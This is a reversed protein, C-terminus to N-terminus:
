PQVGRKSARCISTPSRTSAVWQPYINCSAAAAARLHALPLRQQQQFACCTTAAVTWRSSRVRSCRAAVHQHSASHCGLSASTATVHSRITRIHLVTTSLLARTSLAIPNRHMAGHQSLCPSVPAMEPLRQWMAGAQCPTETGIAGYAWCAIVFIFDAGNNCQEVTAM